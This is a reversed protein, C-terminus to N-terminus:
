RGTLVTLMLPHLHPNAALISYPPALFDAQGDASTALGGAEQIILGAAAIDWPKLRLNWMGDLRGAAVYCLELAASGSRRVNQAQHCFRRFHDLNNLPTDLLEYAFGTALMGDILREVGSVHLRTEGLWAGGGREASFCEGRNPDFVVGYKLRGKEAYALSVCFFPYGHAYNVTGDLPDIYWIHDPDGDLSGSEEACIAHGPFRQRIQGVLYDESRHDIETVLDTVGKHHIHHRQGFGELLIDGAQAAWQKIDNLTPQM